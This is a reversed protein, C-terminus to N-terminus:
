LYFIPVEWDGELMHYGFYEEFAGDCSLLANCHWYNLGAALSLSSTVFSRSFYMSAIM